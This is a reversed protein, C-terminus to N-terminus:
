RAHKNTISTGILNLAKKTYAKEIIAYINDITLANQTSCKKALIPNSITFTINSVFRRSDVSNKSLYILISTRQDPVPIM